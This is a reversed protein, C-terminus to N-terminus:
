TRRFLAKLPKSDFSELGRGTVDLTSTVGIAALVDVAMTDEGQRALMAAACCMGQEFDNFKPQRMKPEKAPKLTRGTNIQVVPALRTPTKAASATKGM